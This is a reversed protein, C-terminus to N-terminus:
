GDLLLYSLDPSPFNRELTAKASQSFLQPEAAQQAPASCVAILLLLGALAATPAPHGVRAVNKNNHGPHSTVNFRVAILPGM